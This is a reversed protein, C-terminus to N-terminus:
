QLSNKQETTVQIGHTLENLNKIVTDAFKESITIQNNKSNESM